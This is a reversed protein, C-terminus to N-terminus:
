PKLENTEKEISSFLIVFLYLLTMLLINFLFAGYIMGIIFYGILLIKLINNKIPKLYYKNILMLYIIGGILGFFVFLDFPDIEIRLHNYNTGGFLYNVPAWHSSIFDLTRNFNLDRTSFIVTWFGREELLKEWFPFFKVVVEIINKKFILIISTALVGFVRFFVKYRSQICFHVIYFLPLVLFAIKKGSLLAIFVFYISPLISKGKLYYIYYYISALVYLLVSEGSKIFLGSYGFRKSGPFSQFLDFNFIFGYLILISNISLIVMITNLVLKSLKIKDKHKYIISVYLIIFIYKNLHYIDGKLVEDFFASQFISNKVLFFQGIFFCCILVLISYITKKDLGKKLAIIVLFAEFFFKVLGSYRFYLIIGIYNNIKMFFDSFLTLLFLILIAKNFYNEKRFFNININEM